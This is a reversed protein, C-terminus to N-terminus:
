QKLSVVVVERCNHWFVSSYEINVPLGSEKLIGRLGSNALFSKFNPFHDHGFTAEVIRIGLGGINKPLPTIADILIGKAAVRLAEKLVSIQQDRTLEHMLFIMTSYDFSHNKFSVLNTADEHMFTIDQFPNNKRAFDLMRLSLDIGVVHCNKQKRLAFSLQGTGCAIDLVSSGENILDVTVQRGEALKPDLLKHFIPGYFFLSKDIPGESEPLIKGSSM